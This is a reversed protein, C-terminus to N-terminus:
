EVEKMKTTRPICVLKGTSETFILDIGMPYERNRIRRVQNLENSFPFTLAASDKIGPGKLQWNSQGSLSDSEIVFTASTHPDILTGIKASSFAEILVSEPCDVPVIIYDAEAVDVQKAGTHLSIAAVTKTEYGPLVHFCVESDLLTLLTLFTSDYCGIGLSDPDALSSLSVIKGPHAMGDLLTRFVQQTDYVLDVQM